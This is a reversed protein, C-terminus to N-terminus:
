PRARSAWRGCRRDSEFWLPGSATFTESPSATQRRTWLWAWFVTMASFSALRSTACLLIKWEFSPSPPRNFHCPEFFRFGLAVVLISRIRYGTNADVLLLSAPLYALSGTTLFFNSLCLLCTPTASLRRTVLMRGNPSPPRLTSLPLLSLHSIPYPPLKLLFFLVVM